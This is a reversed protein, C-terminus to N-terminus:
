VSLSTRNDQIVAMFDSASKMAKKHLMGYGALENIPIESM